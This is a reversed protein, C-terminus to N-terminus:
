VMTHCVMTYPSLTLVDCVIPGHFSISKSLETPAHALESDLSIQALFIQRFQRVQM